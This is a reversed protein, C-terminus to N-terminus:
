NDEHTPHYSVVVALPEFGPVADDTTITFKLSHFPDGDLKEPFGPQAIRYGSKTISMSVDYNTTSGDPYHSFTVTADTTKQKSILKVASLRTETALGAFAIDGTQFTHTIDTGDLDLGNELREMYGTNLFGYAYDNGNTDTVGVGCQLDATRDIEFWKNRAIDYVLETNLTTAATGSAFIWHYEQNAKDLFGISDGVMSAKICRSDQKDFYEKIDGHIPIPARGDSMYIGNAGQWIALSRNIGTGPEAHLNITKLTLPAPCGISSSLLFTNDAWMNIDQGAVVWTEGDKFMLILSYLSSGFQSFLEVGCTLAGDEGFYIDVSDTGNYVQPMYKSSVIAKNKEGAMDSCLLVRGQAFLPFKFYNVENQASIGGVYNVRVSADMAKDFRVRYYYLPPSNSVVKLTENSLSNNNWSVVGSKALSIAGESTGDTITGASVYATGDWYDIAMTTAATSNTYEPAVDIKLGTQKKFFGIELCNNPTSFAGMSSLDSYTYASSADYDDELINITNDLYATTYKYFRAASRFVGDWMDVINQFPADLTVHYIEAEGADIAFQYWYLFYGELYKPKATTVTSSFTVTGTAALSAGTDTNDTLSLTDWTSGNWYKGTMTSATLNGSSIYYKIGQIPLPSGILWTRTDVRYPTAPATFNATWRAIGKSIRFEDIWGTFYYDTPVNDTSHAIQFIGTYDDFNNAITGSYYSTGNVYISYNTGYRVIAIHYWSGTSIGAGITGPTAVDVGGSRLHIEVEGGTSLYINAFNAADIRQSFLSGKAAMSYPKIWFDVTWDGAGIYFDANDPCSLYDDTGDFYVSGAGFVSQASEVVANGAATITHPTTPSSDIINGVGATGSLEDAHMLFVTYSDIGGGILAINETTQKTNNIVDTYDIPTTAGGTDGIAASSTVFAGVKTESGGWICTDVGNCYIMQGDPAESFRGLGFGTSDTWIATATFAATGPIVATNEKIESSTLATNQVQVLVHSEAPQSKKFHFANKTLLTTTMATVNIKTMGGVGKIHTDTYRLNKLTQFNQGIAAPDATYFKGSLPIEKHQTKSPM